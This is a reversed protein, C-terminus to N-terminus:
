VNSSASIDAISSTSGDFTKSFELMIPSTNVLWVARLTHDVRCTTSSIAGIDNASFIPVNVARMVGTPSFRIARAIFRILMIFGADFTVSKLSGTNSIRFMSAIASM